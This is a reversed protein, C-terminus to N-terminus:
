QGGVFDQVGVICAVGDHFGEGFFSDRLREGGGRRLSDISSALENSNWQTDAKVNHAGRLAALALQTPQSLM